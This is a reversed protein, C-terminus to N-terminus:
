GRGAFSEGVAMLSIMVQYSPWEENHECVDCVVCCSSTTAVHPMKPLGSPGQEDIDISCYSGVLIPLGLRM